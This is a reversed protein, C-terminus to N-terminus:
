VIRVEVKNVTFGNYEETSGREIIMNVRENVATNRGVSDIGIRNDPEGEVTVNKYYLRFEVSYHDRRGISNAVIVDPDETIRAESGKTGVIAFDQGTAMMKGQVGFSLTVNDTGPATADNIRLEADSPLDVSMEERGGRVSVEKINKNLDRMFREMEEFERQDRSKELIERGWFYASFSVTLIVGTLLIATLVQQGKRIEFFGFSGFM